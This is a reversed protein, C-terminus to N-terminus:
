IGPLILLISTESKQEDNLIAYFKDAAPKLKRIATLAAELRKESAALREPLNSPYAGACVATMADTNLKAVAKLENLAAQQEPTPKVMLEITTLSTGITTASSCLGGMGLGGGVLRGGHRQAQAVSTLLTVALILFGFSLWSTRKM